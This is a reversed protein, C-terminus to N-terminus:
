ITEVMACQYMACFGTYFIHTVPKEEKERINDHMRQKEFTVKKGILPTFMVVIFTGQSNLQWLLGTPPPPTAEMKEVWGLSLQARRCVPELHSIDGICSHDWFWWWCFTWKAALCNSVFFESIILFKTPATLIPFFFKWPKTQVVHNILYLNIRIFGRNKDRPWISAMHLGSHIPRYAWCRSRQSAQNGLVWIWRTLPSLSMESGDPSSPLTWSKRPRWLIM